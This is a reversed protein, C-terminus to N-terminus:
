MSNDNAIAQLMRETTQDNWIEDYTNMCFREALLVGMGNPLNAVDLKELVIFIIMKRIRKAYQVELQCNASECYEKTVFAVVCDSNNIGDQIMQHLNLNPVMEVIDIWVTKGYKTELEQALKQVHAKFRGWHYSIFINKKEM